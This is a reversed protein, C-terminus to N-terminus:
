KKLKYVIVGGVIILFFVGAYLIINKPSANKIPNLANPNLQQSNTTDNAIVPQTLKVDCSSTSYLQKKANLITNLISKVGELKVIMLKRNNLLVVKIGYTKKLENEYIVFYDNLSVIDKEILSIQEKLIKCDSTTPYQNIWYSQESMVNLDKVIM